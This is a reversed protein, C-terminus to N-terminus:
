PRAHAMLDVLRQLDDESLSNHLPLVLGTESLQEAVPCPALDLARYLPMSSFPRFFPRIEIAATQAQASLRAWAKVNALVIPFGWPVPLTNPNAEQLRIPLARDQVMDKMRLYRQQLGLATSAFNNLKSLGLAAQYSTLRFNQGLLHHFYKEVGMGHSRLLQLTEAYEPHPTVVAGGEGISLAKTSQFSFASFDGMTGVCKGGSQAGFAEAADEIVLLKHQRAWALLEPLPASHGYVHVIVIAKTKKTHAREYLEATPMFTHPSVDVQRVTLGTMLAMNLPAGFTFAPILVEDGPQLLKKELAALFIAHLASTGSSMAIVAHNHHMHSLAAEFQAVEPGFSLHGKRLTDSVAEIDNESTCPSAFHIPSLNHM